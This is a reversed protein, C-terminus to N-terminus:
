RHCKVFCGFPESVFCIYPHFQCNQQLFPLRKQLGKHITKEEKWKSKFRLIQSKLDLVKNLNKLQLQMRLIIIHFCNWIGNWKWKCFVMLFYSSFWWIYTVQKYNFMLFWTCSILVTVVYLAPRNFFMYFDWSTKAVTLICWWGNAKLTTWNKKDFTVEQTDLPKLVTESCM